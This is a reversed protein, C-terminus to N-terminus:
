VQRPCSGIQTLGRIQFDVYDFTSGWFDLVQIKDSFVFVILFCLASFFLVM